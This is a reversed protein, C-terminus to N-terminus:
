TLLKLKLSIRFLITLFVPKLYIAIFNDNTLELVFRIWLTYEITPRTTTQIRVCIYIFISLRKNKFFNTFLSLSSSLVFLQKEQRWRLDNKPHKKAMKRKQKAQSRNLDACICSKGEHKKEEQENLVLNHKLNNSFSIHYIIGENKWKTNITLLDASDRFLVFNSWNISACVM